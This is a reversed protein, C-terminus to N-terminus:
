EGMLGAIIRAVRDHAERTASDDRELVLTLIDGESCGEPLLVAPVNFRLCDSDPIVLVATPDGIREVVAKM